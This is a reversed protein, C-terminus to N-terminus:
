KLTFGALPLLENTNKEMIVGLGELLVKVQALDTVPMLGTLLEDFKNALIATGGLAGNMYINFAARQDIHPPLEHSNIFLQWAMKHDKTDAYSM